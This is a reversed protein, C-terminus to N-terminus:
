NKETDPFEKETPIYLYGGQIYTQLERVLADPLVTAANVYKM